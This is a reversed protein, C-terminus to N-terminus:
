LLGALWGDTGSSVPFYAPQTMLTFIRMERLWSLWHKGGAALHFMSVTKGANFRNLEKFHRPKM